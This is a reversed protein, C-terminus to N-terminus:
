LQSVILDIWQWILLKNTQSLESWILEFDSNYIILPIANQKKFDEINKNYFEKCTNYLEVDSIKNEIYHRMKFVKKYILKNGVDEFLEILENLLNVIKDKFM